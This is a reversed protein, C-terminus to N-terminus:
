NEDYQENEKYMKMKIIMIIKRIAKQCKKKNKNKKKKNNNNKFNNNKMKKRNKKIINNKKKRRRRRRRIKMLNNNKSNRRRNNTKKKLKVRNKIRRKSINKIRKHTKRWKTFKKTIIKAQFKNIKKLNNKNKTCNKKRSVKIQMRRMM